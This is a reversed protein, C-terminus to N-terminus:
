HRATSDHDTGEHIPPNRWLRITAISAQTYGAPDTADGFAAASSLTNTTLLGGVFPPPLDRLTLQCRVPFLKPEPFDVAVALCDGRGRFSLAGLEVEAYFNQRARDDTAGFCGRLSAVRQQKADVVKGDEPRSRVSWFSFTRESDTAFPDFGARERVCWADSAASRERVSRLVYIDERAATPRERPVWGITPAHLSHIYLRDSTETAGTTEPYAGAPDQLDELVRGEDDFAFVHGYPKGTPLLFRPLRLLVKRMFPNQSLGDAAPNRPKFLGTWVRGDLGRMLNDPYGPLNDILVGAQPSGSQVHLNRASADIKWIRYRGTESVFLSRGDSSLAIGNAFSLGHAVVRTSGSAPDHELVRGSAAQELIDLVSAEYTGGWEAPAFRTSADTFYITGDPAVTVSNAYRIPDDRSVRDALVTVRGDTAIALLGKMADAAIMRRDADFAFGLVRGGTNAFVERHTGDPEMRLVDGSTMAAYLKGDPGIAMHEPGYESGIEITRLKALRANVAHPGAYGPPIPAAWPVPEAPIPWLCLYAVTALLLVGLVSSAVKLARRLNM